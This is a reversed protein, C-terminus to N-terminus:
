RRRRASRVQVHGTRGYGILRRDATVLEAGLARATAVIMRDAPDGVRFEPLRAADVAIEATLPVLLVGPPRRTEAIWDGLERALTLRGKAILMALEWASITAVHLQARRAAAEVARLVAPAVARRDGAAAWVWVHTDLVLPGETPM